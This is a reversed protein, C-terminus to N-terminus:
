LKCLDLHRMAKFAIEMFSGAEIGVVRMLFIVTDAKKLNVAISCSCGLWIGILCNDIYCERAPNYGEGRVCTLLM